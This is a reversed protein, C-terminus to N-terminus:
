EELTHRIGDGDVFFPKETTSSVAEKAEYTIRPSVKKKSTDEAKVADPTDKSELAYDGTEFVTSNGEANMAMSAAQRSGCGCVSIIILASLCVIGIYKKM